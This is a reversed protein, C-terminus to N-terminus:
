RLTVTSMTSPVRIGVWSWVIASRDLFVPVGGVALDDDVGVGAQDDGDASRDRAVAVVASGPVLGAGFGGDPLDGGDGVAAVAAGVQDDGVAALVLVDFQGDPFLFVVARVSADAGTDLMDEGAHLGPLGEAIAAQFAIPDVV